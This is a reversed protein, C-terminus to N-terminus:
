SWALGALLCGTLRATGGARGVVAATLVLLAVAAAGGLAAFLALRHAGDGFPLLVTALRGLLVYTPYGPPHPVGLTMVAATLEGSDAGQNRWTITQAATVAYLLLAAGGAALAWPWAKRLALGAGGGQPFPSPAGHPEREEGRNGM